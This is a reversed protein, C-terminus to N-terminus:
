GHKKDRLLDETQSEGVQALTAATLTLALYQPCTRPSGEIPDGAHNVWHMPGVGTAELELAGPDSREPELQGLSVLTDPDLHMRVGPVREVRGGIVCKWYHVRGTKERQNDRVERFAVYTEVTCEQGLEVLVAAKAFYGNAAVELHNSSDV